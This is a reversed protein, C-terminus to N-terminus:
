KSNGRINYVIAFLAAQQVAALFILTYSIQFWDSFIGIVNYSVPILAGTVLLSKLTWKSHVIKEAINGVILGLGLYLLSSTIDFVGIMVYLLGLYLGGAYLINTSTKNLKM